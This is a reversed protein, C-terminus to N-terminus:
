FEVILATDLWDDRLVKEDQNQTIALKKRSEREFMKMIERIEVDLGFIDIYSYIINEVNSFKKQEQLTQIKSHFAVRLLDGIKEARTKISILEDLTTKIAKVDGALAYDECEIMLKIWHKELMDVLEINEISHKDILEYCEKFNSKEYALLLKENHIASKSKKNLHKDYSYNGHLLNKIEDRKTLITVYKSLTEHALDKQDILMQQEALKLAEKYVSQMNQFEPTLELLPHKSCLAYAISYKEELIHLKFRDYHKFDLFLTNIENKKSSVDRFNELLKHANDYNERRLEEIAKTFVVRYMEELKASEPTGRLMPNDDILGFAAEFSNDTILPTLILSSLEKLNIDKKNKLLTIISPTTIDRVNHAQLDHVQVQDNRDISILIERNLFLLDTIYLGSAEIINKRRTYIDVIVITGDYNACALLNEHFALPSVSNIQSKTFPFSHLRAIQSTSSRKYQLVRGNNLSFTYLLKHAV